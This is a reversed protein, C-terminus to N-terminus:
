PQVILRHNHPCGASSTLRSSDFPDCRYYDLSTSEFDNIHIPDKGTAPKYVYREADEREKQALENQHARSVEKFVTEWTRKSTM